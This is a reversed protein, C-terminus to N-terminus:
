VIRLTPPQLVMGILVVLSIWGVGLVVVFVIAIARRAMTSISIGVAANACDRVNKSLLPLTLPREIV